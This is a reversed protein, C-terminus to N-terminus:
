EKGCLANVVSCSITKLAEPDDVGFNKKAIAAVGLLLAEVDASAHEACARSAGPAPSNVIPIGRRRLEDRAGPTFLISGDVHISGTEKCIRADIGDKEILQKKM